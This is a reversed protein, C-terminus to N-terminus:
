LVYNNFGIIAIGIPAPNNASYEQLGLNYVRIRFPLIDKVITSYKSESVKTKPYENHKALKVVPYDSTKAIAVPM